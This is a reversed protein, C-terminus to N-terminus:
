QVYKLERIHIFGGNNHDLMMVFTSSADSALLAGIVGLIVSAAAVDGTNASVKTKGVFYFDDDSKQLPYYGFKTTIYPKGNYVIAYIDKPKVKIMKNESNPIKVRSIKGDKGVEVNAQKDPKQCSFSQYNYYLGEAYTDTNYIKIKRKEISDIEQIDNFSYYNSDISEKLLNNALFDTITKSASKFLPKTVDMSKILILTDISELKQYQYNNKSYLVAKLYCYGKESVAGTIEAFTLQRLQFLLEGDNASSDTLSQIVNKLQISIPVKTIVKAKRNFAGRQIIGMKSTDIRSDLYDISSYRSKQIKYEPLAIKFDKTLNQSFLTNACLGLFIIIIIKKM